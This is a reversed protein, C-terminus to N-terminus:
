CINKKEQGRGRRLIQGRSVPEAHRGVGTRENIGCGPQIQHKSMLEGGQRGSETVLAEIYVTLRWRTLELNMLDRLQVGVVTEGGLDRRCLALLGRPLELLPHQRYETSLNKTDLTNPDFLLGGSQFSPM